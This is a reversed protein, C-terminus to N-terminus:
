RRGVFLLCSVNSVYRDGVHSWVAMDAELKDGLLIVIEEAFDILDLLIPFVRSFGFVSIDDSAIHVVVMVDWNRQWIPEFWTLKM